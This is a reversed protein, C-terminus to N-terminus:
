IDELPVVSINYDLYIIEIMVDMVVVIADSQFCTIQIILIITPYSLITHVFFFPIIYYHFYPQAM